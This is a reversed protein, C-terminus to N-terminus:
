DVFSALIGRPHGTIIFKTDEAPSGVLSDIYINDLMNLKKTCFNFDLGKTRDDFLIDESRFRIKDDSAISILWFHQGSEKSAENM